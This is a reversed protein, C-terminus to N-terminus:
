DTMIRDFSVSAFIYHKKYYNLVVNIEILFIKNFCKPLLRIDLYKKRIGSVDTENSIMNVFLKIRKGNRM